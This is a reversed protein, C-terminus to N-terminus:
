CGAGGVVRVWVAAILVGVSFALMMRGVEEREVGGVALVWAGARQGLGAKPVRNGLIVVTGDSPPEDRGARVVGRPVRDVVHARHLGPLGDLSRTNHAAWWWKLSRVPLVASTRSVAESPCSTRDAAFQADLRELKDSWQLLARRDAKYDMVPVAYGCSTSIKYVDVVVAARSGSLRTAPPVLADYEATGFEHVTGRGFLRLIRAPGAFACFMVTIRGNERVHAITEVGSGSLDEYWVRNKNAVHFSGTLGKPSVNVHGDGTLPSTAVFFMHQKEIWAILNDPIHDWFQVM